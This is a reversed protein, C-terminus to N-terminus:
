TRERLPEFLPTAESRGKANFPSRAEFDFTDKCAAYTADSVLIRCHQNKTEGEIRSALNVADGIATYELRDKSGLFGVVAEGTHVGIGIDFGRDDEPLEARFRDLERSMELAARVARQAHDPAGVPAGWIAMIADGIFKNVTGEHRFVVEVQRSFYRNLLEMIEKPARKESLTTYGRIDSFLVSIQLSRPERQLEISGSRVLTEVVHPDLFRGFTQVAELRARRERLYSQLALAFYALWGFAPPTFAPVLWNGALAGYAAAFWAPSLLLLGAGVGLLGARGQSLALVGLVLAACLAADLWVPSRRLSDGNKLTEIAAAVIDPGPHQGLIPTPRLDTLGSANTGVIVIKDRLEDPPRQKERAGFDQYLDVYSVQVRNEPKGRWHMLLSDGEPMAFGLDRAVRAPLSPIRYGGISTALTYGRGVGDSDDLFNISGIRGSAALPPLPLIMAAHGPKAGAEPTFGLAQGYRALDLGSGPTAEILVLPFYTRTSSLATEIFYQDADAHEADPDSFMIDFVVARPRQALIGALLDAHVSRPWPWRGFEASMGALSREDIQVMVIDTDPVRSEANLRLLWDQARYELPRLLHLAGFEAAILLLM